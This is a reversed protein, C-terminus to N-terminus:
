AAREILDRCLGAIRRAGQGDVLSSAKLAVASQRAPDPPALLDLGTGLIAGRSSLDHAFREEEPTQPLVHVAKGLHMLEMLTTGGNAVAWGCGAMLAPLEPPTVRVDVGEPAEDLPGALPGRVLIVDLGSQKLRAAAQPGRDGLDSGGISVLVYDGTQRAAERIELRIIAYDLGYLVRRAAVSEAPANTRIVIDARATGSYDLAIVPRNTDRAKEVWRTGEYPLDILTLDPSRSGNSDARDALAERAVVSLPNWRVGFGEELLTQSLTRMRSIHGYGLGSGGDVVIEILPRTDSM